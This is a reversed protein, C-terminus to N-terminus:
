LPSRFYVNSNISSLGIYIWIIWLLGAGIGYIPNLDTVLLVIIAGLLRFLPQKALDRIVDM